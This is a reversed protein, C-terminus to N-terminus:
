IHRRHFPPWKTGPKLTHFGTLTLGRPADIMSYISAMYIYIYIDTGKMGYFIVISILKDIGPLNNNWLLFINFAGQIVIPHNKKLSYNWHHRYLSFAHAYTWFPMVCRPPNASLSMVVLGDPRTTMDGYALGRTTYHWPEGNRLIKVQGTPCVSKSPRVITMSAWIFKWHCHILSHQIEKGGLM